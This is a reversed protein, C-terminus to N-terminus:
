VQQSAGFGDREQQGFGNRLRQRQQASAGLGAAVSKGADAAPREETFEGVGGAEAEGATNETGDAASENLAM